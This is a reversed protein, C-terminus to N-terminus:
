SGRIGQIGGEVPLQLEVEALRALQKGIQLCGVVLEDGANLAFPASIRTGAM